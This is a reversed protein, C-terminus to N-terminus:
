KYVSGPSKIQFIDREAAAVVAAVEVMSVVVVVLFLFLVLDLRLPPSSPDNDEEAEEEFTGFTRSSSLISCISVEMLSSEVKLVVVFLVVVVVVVDNVSISEWARLEFSLSKNSIHKATISMPFTLFEMRARGAAFTRGNSFAKTALIREFAM